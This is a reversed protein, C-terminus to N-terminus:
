RPEDGSQVSIEMGPNADQAAQVGAKTLIPGSLHLDGRFGGLALKLLGADTLKTRMMTISPSGPLALLHPVSADGIASHSLYLGSLKGMGAIGAMGADTIATNDLFLTYLGKMSGVHRLGQDDVGSESLTLFTVSALDGLRALGDGAVRTGDLYLQELADLGTPPTKWAVTIPCYQAELRKLRPMDRIPELTTISSNAVDLTELNTCRAVWPMGADALGAQDLVLLKLGPLEGLHELGADTLPMRRLILGELRGLGTVPSTWLTRLPCGNVLLHTMKPLNRLPELTTAKAGDLDLHRLEKCGALHALGVETVATDEIHVDALAPLRALRAMGLDTIGPGGLYVDRLRTLGSLRDLDADDLRMTAIGLGLEELQRLGAVAPIIARTLKPGGDDGYLSLSELRRLRRLGTAVGADTVPCDVIDLKRLSTLRSAAAMAADDFYDGGYVKVVTAVRDIGFVDVLWRTWRNTPVGNKDTELDYGVRAKVAEIAAVSDRQVKARHEFWGLGGGCALVLLLLGRVSLRLRRRAAKPRSGTTTSM